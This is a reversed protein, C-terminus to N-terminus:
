RNAESGFFVHHCELDKRSGCIVCAFGDRKMVEGVTAASLKRVTGANTKSVKRIPARVKKGADSILDKKPKAAKEKKTIEAVKSFKLGAKWNGKPM